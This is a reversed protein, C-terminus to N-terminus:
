ILGRDDLVAALRRRTVPDAIGIVYAAGTPVRDIGLVAIGRIQLGARKEDVFGAVTRGAAIAVDLTERGAGGAGVVYLDM